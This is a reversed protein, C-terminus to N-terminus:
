LFLTKEVACTQQELEELHSDIEFEEKGTAFSVALFVFVPVAQAVSFM